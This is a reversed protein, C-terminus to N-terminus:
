KMADDDEVFNAYTKRNDLTVFNGLNSPQIRLPKLELMNLTSIQFSLSM